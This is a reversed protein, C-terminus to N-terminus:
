APVAGLGLIDRIGRIPIVAWAPRNNLEYVVEYTAKDLLYAELLVDVDERNDPIFIASGAAELYADLFIGSVYRSWLEAWPTLLPVDEARVARQQSLANYAAYHFSRMMGAVDRLSCRKLKREGLSRLPEGEFDIIVFDKGTNLVQGLHYDGHTRIKSAIIKRRLIRAQRHLIENEQSLVDIAEQRFQEPIIKLSKELLQFGRRVSGRMSQYASRQYLTSFPEPAFNADNREAALALHM